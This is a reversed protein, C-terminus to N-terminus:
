KLLLRLINLAEYFNIFIFGSLFVISGFDAAGCALGGSSKVFGIDETLKKWCGICQKYKSTM